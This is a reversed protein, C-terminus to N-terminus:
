STAFPWRMGFRPSFFTDTLRIILSQPTGDGCLNALHRLREQGDPLQLFRAVADDEISLSAADGVVRGTLLDPQMLDVASPM